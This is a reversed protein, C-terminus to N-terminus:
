VPFGYSVADDEAGETGDETRRAQFHCWDVLRGGSFRAPRSTGIVSFLEAGARCAERPTGSWDGVAILDTGSRFSAPMVGTKGSGPFLFGTMIREAPCRDASEGAREHQETMGCYCFRRYVAHGNEDEGTQHWVTLVTELSGVEGNGSYGNKLDM